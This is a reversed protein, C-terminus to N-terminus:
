GFSTKAKLYQWQQFRDTWTDTRTGVGLKGALCMVIVDYQAHHHRLDGAECNNVWGNIMACLLPFMLAGCWQGKHPSNVPSNGVCFALLASFTEMEHCWWSMKERQCDNRKVLKQQHIIIIVIFVSISVCLDNHHNYYNCANLIIMKAAQM